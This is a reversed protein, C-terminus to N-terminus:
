GSITPILCRGVALLLHSGTVEPDGDKCDVRALVDSGRKSFGICTANLRM